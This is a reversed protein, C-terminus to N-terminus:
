SMRSQRMKKCEVKHGGTTWHKRSCEESCYRIVRCGTCVKAGEADCAACKFVNASAGLGRGDSHALFNSVDGMKEESLRLGLDSVLFRMLDVDGSSRATSMFIDAFSMADSRAGPPKMQEFVRFDFGRSKLLTLLGIASKGHRMAVCLVSLEDVSLDVPRSPLVVDLLCKLCGHQRNSIALQVASVPASRSGQVCSMGAGLDHCLRLMPINGQFIALGPASICNGGGGVQGSLNHLVDLKAGRRVLDRVVVERSRGVACLLMTSNGSDGHPAISHISVLGEELMSIASDDDEGELARVFQNVNEEEM